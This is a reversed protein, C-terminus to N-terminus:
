LVNACAEAFLAQPPAYIGGGIRGRRGSKDLIGLAVTPARSTGVVRSASLGVATPHRTFAPHRIPFLAGNEQGSTEATLMSGFGIADVLASDGIAGLRDQDAFGEILTGVPPEAPAVFWRGPMAGLQIGVEVGNGGMATVLASGPREGAKAM